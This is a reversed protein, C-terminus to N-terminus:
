YHVMEPVTMECLCSQTSQACPRRRREAHSPVIPLSAEVPLVQKENVCAWIQKSAVPVVHKRIERNWAFTVYVRIVDM